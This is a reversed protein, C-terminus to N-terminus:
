ELEALKEADLIRFSQRDYDILGDDKLQALTRSLSPRAVGLTQALLERSQNLTFIAGLPHHRAENLLFRAIKGRLSPSSLVNVKEMLRAAQNAVLSLMNRIVQQHSPCAASCTQYFAGAPFVLCDADSAALLYRDTPRENTFAILHGYVAGPDLEDIVSEHGSASVRVLELRGTLVLYIGGPLDGVGHLLSGRSYHREQPNVCTMFRAVDAERCDAFLPMALMDTTTLAM